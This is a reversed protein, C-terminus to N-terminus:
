DKRVCRRRISSLDISRSFKHGVREIRSKFKEVLLFFFCFDIKVKKKETNKKQKSATTLLFLFVWKEENRKHRINFLRFFKIEVLFIIKLSKRRIKRRDFVDLVGHRIEDVIQFSISSSRDVLKELLRIEVLNKSRDSSKQEAVVIPSCSLKVEVFEVNETKASNRTVAGENESARDFKRFAKFLKEFSKRLSRDGVIEVDNFGQRTQQRM